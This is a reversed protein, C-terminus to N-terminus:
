QLAKSMPPEQGLISWEDNLPFEITATLRGRGLKWESRGRLEYPVRRSILETGFGPQPRATGRKLGSENWRLRLWEAGDVENCEWSLEIRGHGQGLAGFKVSNTALEHLVLTLVDAARPALRVRPGSLSFAPERAANALMEDRIIEELDAGDGPFRTLLAQTRALADIRGELHRVFDEVDTKHTSTRRVISRIVALINRVRHQLEAVLKNQQELDRNRQTDGRRRDSEEPM